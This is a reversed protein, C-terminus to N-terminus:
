KRKGIKRLKVRLFLENYSITLRQFVKKPNPIYRVMLKGPFKRSKGKIGEVLKIREALAPHTQWWRTKTNLLRDKIQDLRRRDAKKTFDLYASYIDKWIKGNAMLQRSTHYAFLSFDESYISYKLLVRSFFKGGVEKAAFLDARKERYRMYPLSFVLLLSRFALVSYWIILGYITWAIWSFYKLFLELSSFINGVLASFFTDRGKFHGFEHCLIAYFERDKLKLIGGIGVYVKKKLVGSVGINTDPTLFVEDVKMGFDNSASTILKHLPWSKPVKVYYKRELKERMLSPVIFILPLLFIGFPLLFVLFLFSFIFLMVLSLSFYAVVREILKM